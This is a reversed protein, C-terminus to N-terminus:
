LERSHRLSNMQLSRTVLERRQERGFGLMGEAHVRREIVPQIPTPSGPSTEVAAGAGGVGAQDIRTKGADQSVPRALEALEAALVAEPMVGFPSVGVLQQELEDENEPRM